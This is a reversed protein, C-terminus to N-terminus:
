NHEKGHSFPCDPSVFLLILMLVAGGKGMLTIATAPSSLGQSVQAASLANPYTPFSESGTLAACGLGM